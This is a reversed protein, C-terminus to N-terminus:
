SGGVFDSMLPDSRPREALSRSQKDLDACRRRIGPRSAMLAAYGEEGLNQGRADALLVPPNGALQASDRLCRCWGASGPGRSIAATFAVWQAPSCTLVPGTPNKSDRVAHGDQGEAFEVCNIENM